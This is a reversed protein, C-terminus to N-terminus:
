PMGALSAIRVDFVTAWFKSQAKQLSKGLALLDCQETVTRIFIRATVSANQFL